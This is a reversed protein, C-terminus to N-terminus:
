GDAIKITKVATMARKNIRRNGERFAPASASYEHCENGMGLLKKRGFLMEEDMRLPFAFAKQISDADIFDKIQGKCVDIM